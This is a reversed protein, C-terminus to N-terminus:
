RNECKIWLGGDAQGFFSDPSSKLNCPQTTKECPFFRFRSVLSSICVKMEYMAFRMGLCNRPGLSFAMFSYPNREARNDKSFNEPNFETPNPFIEPDMCIGVNNIRVLGGKKIVLDRGPIKYDKTCIRELMAIITHRRLTEHIVADLYPLSQLEEYTLKDVHAAADRIEEYLTEQVDQNIALEYLIYSMTTGTTDYGAALMLVATAIVDDYTLKNGKVHGVIKADNEYQDGAHINDEDAHDADGEIAEIMLDILDNRKINSEKRQKFSQEVVNMLFNTHENAFAYRVLNEFGLAVAIKKLSNPLIAALVFRLVAGTHFKFAEQSHYVFKSDGDEFTKADVGFACSALGDISFKGCVDKTEFMDQTEAFDSIYTNMKKTLAKLLPTMRRLKGSTFIPSFTSRCILLSMQVAIISIKTDFM